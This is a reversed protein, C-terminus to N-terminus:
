ASMRLGHTAQADSLTNDENSKPIEGTLYQAPVLMGMENRRAHIGRQREVTECGDQEHRHDRGCTGGERRYEGKEQVVIDPM